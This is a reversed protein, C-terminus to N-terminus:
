VLEFLDRWVKVTWTASGTVVRGDPMTAVCGVPYNHEFCMRRHAKEADPAADRFARCTRKGDKINGILSLKSLVLSLADTPLATIPM